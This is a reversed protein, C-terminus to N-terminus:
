TGLWTNVMLCYIRTREGSLELCSCQFWLVLSFLQSPSGANSLKKGEELNFDCCITVSPSTSCMYLPSLFCQNPFHLREKRRGGTLIHVLFCICSILYPSFFHLKIASFLSQSSLPLAPSPSRHSLVLVPATRTLPKDEQEGQIYQLLGKVTFVTYAYSHAHM